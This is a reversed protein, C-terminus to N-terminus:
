NEGHLRNRSQSFATAALNIFYSALTIFGFSRGIAFTFGIM